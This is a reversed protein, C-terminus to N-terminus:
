RVGGAYQDLAKDNRGSKILAFAHLVGQLVAAHTAGIAASSPEVSAVQMWLGDGLNRRFVYSARATIAKRDGDISIESCAGNSVRAFFGCRAVRVIALVLQWFFGNSALYL